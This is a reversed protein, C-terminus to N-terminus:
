EPYTKNEGTLVPALMEAITIHGMFDPHFMNAYISYAFKEGRYGSFKTLDFAAVKEEKALEKLTKTIEEMSDSTGNGFPIGILLINKTKQKTKTILARMDEKWKSISAGGALDNGGYQLIALDGSSLEPLLEKDIVTLGRAATWGGHGSAKYTIGKYGFYEEWLRALHAYYMFGEAEPVNNLGWSGRFRQAGATVSDGLAAIKFPKKAKASKLLTALNEAGIIVDKSTITEDVGTEPTIAPSDKFEGKEFGIRDLILWTKKEIPSTVAVMMQWPLKPADPTAHLKEWAIDYKKWSTGIECPIGCFNIKLAESAKAYFTMGATGKMLAKYEMGLLGKSGPYFVAKYAVGDTVSDMTAWVKTKLPLVDTAKGLDPRFWLCTNEETDEGGMGIPIFPGAAFSTIFVFFLLTSFLFYKAKLM